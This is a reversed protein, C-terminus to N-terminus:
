NCVQNNDGCRAVVNELPTRCDPCDTENLKAPNTINSCRPIALLANVSRQCDVSPTTGNTGNNPPTITGNTSTTVNPLTVNADPCTNLFAM